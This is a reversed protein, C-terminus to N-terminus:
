CKMDEAALIKNARLSVELAWLNTIEKKIRRGRLLYVREIM